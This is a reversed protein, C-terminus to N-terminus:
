AFLDMAFAYPVSAGGDWNANVFVKTGDPSPCANTQNGYSADNVGHFNGFVEVDGGSYPPDAFEIAFVVSFGAFTGSPSYSSPYCYGPRLINRCSMVSNPFNQLLPTYAGSSMVYMGLCGSSGGQETGGSVSQNGAVWVDTTGNALLGADWHDGGTTLFRRTATALDIAYVWVGQAVGTGNASNVVVVYQGSQSVGCADVTSISGSSAITVEAAVSMSVTDFVAVGASGNSKTWKFSLFQGDNSGSGQNGGLIIQSYSSLAVSQEITTVGASTVGLRRIINPNSYVWARNPNSSDWTWAGYTTANAVLPAFTEANFMLRAGSTGDLLGVTGDANLVSKSSYRVRPGTAESVRTVETDYQPDTKVEGFLPATLAPKALYVFPIPTPYDLSPAGLVFTEEASEDEVGSVPDRGWVVFYYTGPSLNSLRQVHYSLPAVQRTTVFPYPGGMTTGYRVEGSAAPSVDWIVDVSTPSVEVSYINDFTITPPAIPGWVLTPPM